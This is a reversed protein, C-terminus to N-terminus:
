LLWISIHVTATLSLHPGAKSVLWEEWVPPLHPLLRETARRQPKLSVDQKTCCGKAMLKLKLPFKIAKTLITLLSSATSSLVTVKFSPLRNETEERNLLLASSM